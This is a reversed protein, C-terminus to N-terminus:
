TAKDYINQLEINLELVNVIKEGFLGIIKPKSYKKILTKLVQKRIGTANSIREVQCLAGYFTIHPDLGSASETILNLDPNKNNNLEKFKSYKSLVQENLETSYFPLNSNGSINNNYNNLSPRNHFYKMSKFEQGILKSGIVKNNILILSGTANHYFIVTSLLVSFILYIITFLMTLLCIKIAVM